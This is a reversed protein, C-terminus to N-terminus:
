DPVFSPRERAAREGGAKRQVATGKKKRRGAQEGVQRGALRSRVLEIRVKPVGKAWM